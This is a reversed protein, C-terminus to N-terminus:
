RVGPLLGARILAERLSRETEPARAIEDDGHMLVPIADGYVRRLVEDEEIDVEEFRVSLRELNSAMEECLHCGPRILLRLARPNENM